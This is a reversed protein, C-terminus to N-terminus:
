KQLLSNFNKGCITPLSSGNTASSIAVIIQRKNEVGLVHMYKSGEKEWTKEGGIPVFHIRIQDTNIVL